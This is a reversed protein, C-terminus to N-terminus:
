PLNDLKMIQAIGEPGESQGKTDADPINLGPNSFRFDLRGQDIGIGSGIEAMLFDVQEWISLSMKPTFIRRPLRRCTSRSVPRTLQGM